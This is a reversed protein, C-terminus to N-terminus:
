WSIVNLLNYRQDSTENIPVWRETFKPGWSDSIAFEGTKENYGIILCVHGGGHSDEAQGSNNEKPLEKHNRRATNRNIARQLAPTSEFHWMIPMGVDIYEAIIEIELPDEITELKRGNTSLLHRTAHIMESAYTGGGIGTNAVLALQYMDAPIGLYRLYREWTAPSCYGKPGQNIMPIHQILVDGNSRREVCSALRKKLESGKLKDVKGSRDARQAPIIRMKAYKGEQLILLIAHGNWDWRWVKERMNGKGVTDRKPKGLVPVLADHVHRSAAEIKEAMKELDDPGPKVASEPMDGLNLFVFSLSDVYQDGGYLVTTYVPEELLNQKGLPYARHNELFATKSEKKLAMRKASPATPDDWLYEDQWIDIGFLENMENWPVRHLKGRGKRSLLYELHMRDEEIFTSFPTIVTKGEGTKLKVTKKENVWVVKAETKEGTTDTWIRADAQFFALLMICTLPTLKM